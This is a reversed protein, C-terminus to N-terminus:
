SSAVRSLYVASLFSLGPIVWIAPGFALTLAAILMVGGFGVIPVCFVLAFKAYPWMEADRENVFQEWDAKSGRNYYANRAAAHMMWGSSGM